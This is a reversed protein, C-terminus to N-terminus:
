RRVHGFRNSAVLSRVLSSTMFFLPGKAFALPGQCDASAAYSCNDRPNEMVRAGGTHSGHLAYHEARLQLILLGRSSVRGEKSGQLPLIRM